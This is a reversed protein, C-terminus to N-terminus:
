ADRGQGRVGARRRRRGRRRRPGADFLHQVVGLARRRRARGADRDAGRDPDDHAALRRHARGQAAEEPRIGRPDGDPGADRDRRHSIEKRGSNPSGSTRSSTSKPSPWSPGQQNPFHCRRAADPRRRRAHSYCPRRGACRPYLSNKIHRVPRPRLRTAGFPPQHDRGTSLETAEGFAAAVLRAQRLRLATSAAQRGGRQRHGRGHHTTGTPARGADDPGHDLHRRRDRQRPHRARRRRLARRDASSRRPARTCAKRTSSRSCASM